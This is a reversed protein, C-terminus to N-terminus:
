SKSTIRWQNKMKMVPCNRLNCLSLIIIIVMTFRDQCPFSVRIQYPILDSGTTFFICSRVEVRRMVLQLSIAMGRNNGDTVSNSFRTVQVNNSSQIGGGIAISLFIEHSQLIDGSCLQSMHNFQWECWSHILWILLGFLKHLWAKKVDYLIRRYVRYTPIAQTDGYMYYMVFLWIYRQSRFRKVKVLGLANM